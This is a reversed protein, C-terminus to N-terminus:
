CIMVATGATVVHNRAELDADCLGCM